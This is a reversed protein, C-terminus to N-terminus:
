GTSNMIHIESNTKQVNGFLLNLVMVKVRNFEYHTNTGFFRNGEDELTIAMM